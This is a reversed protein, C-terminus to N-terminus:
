WTSSNPTKSRDDDSERAQRGKVGDQSRRKEDLILPCCTRGPARFTTLPVIKAAPVTHSMRTRQRLASISTFGKCILQLKAFLVVGSAATGRMGFELMRNVPWVSVRELSLSCKESV